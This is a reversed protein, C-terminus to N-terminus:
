IFYGPWGLGVVALSSLHGTGHSSPKRSMLDSEQVVSDQDRGRAELTM